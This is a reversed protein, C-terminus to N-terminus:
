KTPQYNIETSRQLVVIKDFQNTYKTERVIMLMNGLKGQREHLDALYHTVTIQDGPRVPEFYEWESGGDLTASYPKVIEARAKGLKMSRLFTPPATLGGYKTNRAAQENNFAPNQDGIAQAFKIIAGKEVENVVPESEVGIAAKMEETIVSHTM